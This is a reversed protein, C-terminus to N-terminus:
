FSNVTPRAATAMETSMLYHHYHLACRIIYGLAYGPDRNAQWQRRIERRYRARLQPDGVRRMLRAYLVAARALNISQGRFRALPHRRWYGARAPAFPKAMYGLAATLREFYADTEYVERMLRVYGERLAQREIRAPIVNTGFPSEDDPDLRGAAALRAHLPTKPIAVLMGIMAQAISAERLFERQTEFITDDDHDFGLIMGSWVELGALQVARVRDIMTRGAKVNQHKLTEVISAENPSEIGIFVSLVNAAIMLRM